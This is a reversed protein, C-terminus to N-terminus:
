DRELLYVYIMVSSQGRSQQQSKLENKLYEQHLINVFNQIKLLAKVRHFNAHHSHFIALHSQHLLSIIQEYKQAMHYNNQPM